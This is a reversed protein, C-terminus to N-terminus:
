CSLFLSFCRLKHQDSILVFFLVFTHFIFTFHSHQHLHFSHMSPFFSVPVCSLSKYMFFEVMISPAQSGIISLIRPSHISISLFYGSHCICGSDGKRRISSISTIQGIVCHMCLLLCINCLFSDLWISASTPRFNLLDWTM